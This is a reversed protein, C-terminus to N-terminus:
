RQIGANINTQENVLEERIARDNLSERILRYKSYNGSSANIGYTTIKNKEAHFAIEELDRKAKKVYDVLYNDLKRLVSLENKRMKIRLLMQIDNKEFNIRQLFLNMKKEVSEFSPKSDDPKANNYDDATNIFDLLSKIIGNYKEDIVDLKEKLCKETRDKLQKLLEEKTTGTLTDQNILEIKKQLTKILIIKQKLDNKLPSSYEAFERRIQSELINFTADELENKRNKDNVM